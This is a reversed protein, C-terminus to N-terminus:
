AQGEELLRQFRERNGSIGINRPEGFAEGARHVVGEMIRPLRDVPAEGEEAVRAEYEIGRGTEEARYALTVLLRVEGGRFCGAALLGSERRGKRLPPFVWLRDMSEPAVAVALERLARPMAAPVGPDQDKMFSRGMGKPPEMPLFGNMCRM